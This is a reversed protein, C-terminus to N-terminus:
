SRDLILGIEMVSTVPDDPMNHEIRYTYIGSAGYKKNKEILHESDWIELAPDGIYNGQDDRIKLDYTEVRENGDPSVETVKVKLFQHSFGSAYRFSLLMDYAVDTNEVPVEFERVDEKVWKLGPSLDKHNIYERNGPQCSFLSFTLLFLSLLLRIM